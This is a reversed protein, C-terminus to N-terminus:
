SWMRHEYSDHLTGKMPGLKRKKKKKKRNPTKTLNNLGKRSGLTIMNCEREFQREEIYLKLSGRPATSEETQQSDQLVKDKQM